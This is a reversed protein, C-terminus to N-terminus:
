GKASQSLLFSTSSRKQRQGVKCFQRSKDSFHEFHVLLYTQEITQLKKFSRMNPLGAVHRISSFSPQIRKCNESTVILQVRRSSCYNRALIVINTIESRNFDFPPIKRPSKRSFDAFMESMEADVQFIILLKVPTTPNKVM